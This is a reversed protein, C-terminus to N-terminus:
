ASQILIHSSKPGFKPWLLFKKLMVLVRRRQGPIKKDFLVNIDDGAWETRRDRGGAVNRNGQNFPHYKSVLSTISTSDCTTGFVMVSRSNWSANLFPLLEPFMADSHFPLVELTITTLLGM